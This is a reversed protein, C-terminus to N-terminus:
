KIEQRMFGTQIYFDMIHLWVKSMSIKQQESMKQLWEKRWPPIRVNFKETCFSPIQKPIQNKKTKM